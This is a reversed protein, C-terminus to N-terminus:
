PPPPSADTAADPDDDPREVGDEEADGEGQEQDSSFSKGFYFCTRRGHQLDPADDEDDADAGADHQAQARMQRNLDSADM